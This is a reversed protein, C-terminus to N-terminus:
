LQARTEAEMKHDAKSLDNLGGSHFTQLITFEHEDIRGDNLATSISTRFVALVLTMIDVLKTVKLLKKQYNKTLVVAVGSVSVGALSVTGLSISVPLGIFM